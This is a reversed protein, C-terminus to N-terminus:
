VSCNIVACPLLHEIEARHTDSHTSIITTNSNTSIILNTSYTNNLKAYRIRTLNLKWLQHLVATTAYIYM